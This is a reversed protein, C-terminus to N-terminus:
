LPDDPELSGDKPRWGLPDDGPAASAARQLPLALAASEFLGVKVADRRTYRL